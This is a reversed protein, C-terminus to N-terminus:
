AQGFHLIRAIAELSLGMALLESSMSKKIQLNRELRDPSLSAPLPLEHHPLRSVEFSVEDACASGVCCSEFPSM